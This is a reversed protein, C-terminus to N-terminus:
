LLCFICAYHSHDFRMLVDLSNNVSVPYYWSKDTVVLTERISSSSVQMALVSFFILAQMQDRQAECKKFIIKVNLNKKGNNNSTIIQRPFFM